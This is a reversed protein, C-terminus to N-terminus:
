RGAGAPVPRPMPRVSNRLEDIERQREEETKAAACRTVPMNSGTRYERTCVRTDADALPSAQTPQASPNTACGGLALLLLVTLQPKQM